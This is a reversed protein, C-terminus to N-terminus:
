EEEKIGNLFNIHKKYLIDYAKDVVKDFIKIGGDSLDIQDIQDNYMKDLLGEKDYQKLWLLKRYTDDIRKSKIRQRKEKWGNICLIVWLAINYSILIEIGM